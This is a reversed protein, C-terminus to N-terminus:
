PKKPNKVHKRMLNVTQIERSGYSSVSSCLALLNCASALAQDLDVWILASFASALRFSFSAKLSSVFSRILSASLFIADAM